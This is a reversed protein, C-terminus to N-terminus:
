AEELGAKKPQANANAPGNEFTSILVSSILFPRTMSGAEFRSSIAEIRTSSPRTVFTPLMRVVLVAVTMSAVPSTTQGAKDVQVGVQALRAPLVLFGDGRAGAGGGRAPEGGDHAMGLVFGTM